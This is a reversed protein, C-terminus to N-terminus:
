REGVIPARVPLRSRSYRRSRPDRELLGLAEWTVVYRHTTSPSLGLERAVDTLERDSGDIPFAALMLAARLTSQSYTADGLLPGMVAELEPVDGLGALVAAVSGVGDRAQRVVEAVQAASLTVSVGGCGDSVACGGQASWVLRDEFL